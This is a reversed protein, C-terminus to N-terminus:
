GARGVPARRPRPMSPPMASPTAAQRAPPQPTPPPVPPATSPSSPAPGPTATPGPQPDGGPTPTDPGPGVVAAAARHLVGLLTAGDEAPGGPVTTAVLRPAVAALLLREMGLGGARHVVVVDASDPPPLASLLRETSVFAALGFAGAPGPGDGLSASWAAALRPAAEALTRLLARRRNEDRVERRAAGLGILAAAYGAADRGRLAAVARVHEPSMARVAVRGALEDALRDLRRGAEAVAGHDGAALVATAIGAASDVDPVQLPSDPAIFLVDHRLAVVARAAAAVATMTGTL